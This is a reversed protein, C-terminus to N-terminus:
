MQDGSISRCCSRFAGGYVTAFLVLFSRRRALRGGRETNQRRVHLSTECSLERVVFVEIYRIYWVRSLRNEARAPFLQSSKEDLDAFGFEIM